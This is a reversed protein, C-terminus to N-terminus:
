RYHGYIVRWNRYFGLNVNKVPEDCHISCLPIRQIPNRWDGKIIWFNWVNLLGVDSKPPFYKRTCLFSAKEHLTTTEQSPCMYYWHNNLILSLTKKDAFKKQILLKMPTISTTSTKGKFNDIQPPLSYNILEYWRLVWKKYHEIREIIEPHKELEGENYDVKFKPNKPFIVM